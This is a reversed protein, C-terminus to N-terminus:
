ELADVVLELIQNTNKGASQLDKAVSQWGPSHHPEAAICKNIVEEQQEQQGLIINLSTAGLWQIDVYWRAM